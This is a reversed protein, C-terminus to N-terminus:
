PVDLGLRRPTAVQRAALPRYQQAREIERRVAPIRHLHPALPLHDRSIADRMVSRQTLSEPDFRASSGLLERPLM